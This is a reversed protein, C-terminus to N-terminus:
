KVICECRVDMDEASNSGVIEAPSRSCVWAKSQAAVPISVSFSLVRLFYKSSIHNGDSLQINQQVFQGLTQTKNTLVM